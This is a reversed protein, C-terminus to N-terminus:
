SQNAKDASGDDEVAQEQARQILEIISVMKPPPPAMMKEIQEPSYHARIFEVVEFREHWCDFIKRCPSEGGPTRCYGFEVEHGLMRCRIKRKDHETISM